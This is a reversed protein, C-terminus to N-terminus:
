FSFDFLVTLVFGCAPKIIRLLRSCVRNIMKVPPLKKKKQILILLMGM